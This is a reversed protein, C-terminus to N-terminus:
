NSFTKQELQEGNIEPYVILKEPRKSELPYYIEVTLSIKDPPKKKLLKQFGREMANWNEPNGKVAKNQIELQAVLNILEGPGGFQNAIVHGGNDRSQRDKGGAM